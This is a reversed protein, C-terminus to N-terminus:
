RMIKKVNMTAEEYAANWDTDLCFPTLSSKEEVYCNVTEKDTDNFLKHNMSAQRYCNLVATRKEASVSRAKLYNDYFDTIFSSLNVAQSDYFYEDKIINHKKLYNSIYNLATVKFQNVDVQEDSSKPDNVISSAHEYVTKYLSQANASTFTVVALFLLIITKKM